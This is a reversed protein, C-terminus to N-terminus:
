DCRPGASPPRMALSGMPRAISCRGTSPRRGGPQAWLRSMSAPLPSSRGTTRPLLSHSSAEPASNSEQEWSSIACREQPSCRGPIRCAGGFESAIALPVGRVGDPTLECEGTHLGARMERGGARAEDLVALACRIARAPGHFRATMRGEAGDMVVGGSGTIRKRAAEQDPTARDDAAEVVLVTALAREPDNEPPLSTIFEEVADTLADMDGTLPAHWDGPLENFQSGAIREAVYRGSAIPVVDGTCHLVLTPAHIAALAPRVDLRQMQEFMSRAVEPSMSAREFTGWLRRMLRNRALDPALVALTAGKGWSDIALRLGDVVDRLGDAGPYDAGHPSAVLPGYLVLAETREPYTAAYIAFIAAAEYLGFLVSRESGVADLVASVDDLRQELTPPGALPGSLGVGRRDFMIVRSFGALNRLLRTFTPDSWQFDLHSLWGPVFVLDPPGEGLVQYAISVGDAETYQTEPPEFRRPVTARPPRTVIRWDVPPAREPRYVCARGTLVTQTLYEGLEQDHEHLHGVSTKIARTVNLRAREGPSGARRDRGGLGVAASLECAVFEYEARARAAREPDHFADAEDQEARLEELRRKYALKADRDLLPAGVSEDASGLGDQVAEGASVRHTGTAGALELATIEGGPHALLEALYQMGKSDRARLERGDFMVTWYDGEHVLEAVRRDAGHSAPQMDSNLWECDHASGGQNMRGSGM